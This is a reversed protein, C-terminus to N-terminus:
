QVATYKGLLPVKSEPLQMKFTPFNIYTIPLATIFNELLLKRKLCQILTYEFQLICTHFLDMRGIQLLSLISKFHLISFSLKYNGSLKHSIDILSKLEHDRSIPAQNQQQEPTQNIQIKKLCFVTLYKHNEEQQGNIM